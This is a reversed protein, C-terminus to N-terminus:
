WGWLLYIILDWIKNIFFSGFNTMCFLKFSQFLWMVLILLFGLLLMFSLFLPFLTVQALNLCWTSQTQIKISKQWDQSWISWLNNVYCNGKAYSYFVLHLFHSSHFNHTIFTVCLTENWQKVLNHNKIKWCFKLIYLFRWSVKLLLYISGGNRKILFLKSFVCL